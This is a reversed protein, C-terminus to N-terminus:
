SVGARFLMGARPQFNPKQAFRDGLQGNTEMDLVAAAFSVGEFTKSNSAEITHLGSGDGHRISPPQELTHGQKTCVSVAEGVAEPRFTDM